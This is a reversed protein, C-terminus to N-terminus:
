NRKGKNTHTPRVRGEGLAPTADSGRVPREPNPINWSCNSCPVHLWEMHKVTTFHGCRCQIHNRGEGIADKDLIPEVKVWKRKNTPSRKYLILAGNPDREGQRMEKITYQKRKPIPM